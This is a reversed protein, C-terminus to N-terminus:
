YRYCSAPEQEKQVQVLSGQYLAESEMIWSYRRCPFVLSVSSTRRWIQMTCNLLMKSFGYAWLIYLQDLSESGPHFGYKKEELKRYELWMSCPALPHAGFSVCIHRGWLRLALKHVEWNKYSQVSQARWGWELHLSIFNNEGFLNAQGSMLHSLPNLHCLKTLHKKKSSLWFITYQPASNIPWAQPNLCSNQKETQM